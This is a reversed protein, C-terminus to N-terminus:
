RVRDAATLPVDSEPVFTADTLAAPSTSSTPARSAIAFVVRGFGAGLLASFATLTAYLPIAAFGGRTLVVPTYILLPFAAGAAAGWLMFRRSSLQEFRLRRAAAWLVIGFALGCAAGWLAGAGLFMGLLTTAREWRAAPITWPQYRVTFM